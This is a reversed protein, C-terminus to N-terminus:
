FTTGTVRWKCKPSKNLARAIELINRVDDIGSHHRGVHQIDLEKLMNMMGKPKKQTVERYVNKINCWSRMSKPVTLGLYKCHNPLATKFDWDGCTVFLWKTNNALKSRSSELDLLVQPFPIGADVMEQTIGTLETCFPTIPLHTSCYQHFTHVIEDKDTDYIMVPVEMIEQPFLVGGRKCNAEFDLIFLLM